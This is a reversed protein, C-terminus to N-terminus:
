NNNEQKLIFSAVDDLLLAFEPLEPFGYFGHFANEYEILKVEVGCRKLGEAYRVDWDRLVDFRGAIVLTRPFDLNKLEAAAASGPGGFVYTAPHNRNAGEPLFNKWLFDTKKVNIIPVRTLRLESETHEEGGFFPQVGIVGIIKLKEFRNGNQLARVTVHHAINGGASDGMVFCKSLDASAPLIAYNQADIFRLADLGDDYQSPYKHEPSLRYNFSTVVAPVRASLNSCLDDFTKTDPGYEIFGGGHFYVILPLSKEQDTITSPVFLRFWLNRSPEIPVDSTSVITTKILKTAPASAKITDLRIHIREFLALVFLKLRTIFQLDPQSKINKNNSM